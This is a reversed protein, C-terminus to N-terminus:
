RVVVLRRTVLENGSSVHVFYTGATQVLHAPITLSSRGAPLMNDWALGLQRGVIDYLGVRINKSSMMDISVTAVEGIRVPSPFPTSVEFTAIAPTEEIALTSVCGLAEMTLANISCAMTDVGSTCMLNWLPLLGTPLKAPLLGYFEIQSSPSRDLFAKMGNQLLASMAVPSDIWGDPLGTTDFSQSAGPTEDIIMVLSGMSIVVVQYDDSPTYFIYIWVNAKGGQNINLSPSGPVPSTMISILRSGTGHNAQAEAQAALLNASAPFMDNSQALASSGAVCFAIAVFLSKVKV